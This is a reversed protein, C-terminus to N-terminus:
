LLMKRINYRLTGGSHRVPFTYTSSKRITFAINEGAGDVRQRTSPLVGQGDWFVNADWAVSPDDWRAAPSFEGEQLQDGAPQILETTDYVLGYGFYWEAYGDARSETVFNHFSKQFQVAGAHYYHTTFYGDLTNGDFSTGKDLKYVFGNSAGIFLSEIGTSSESSWSCNVTVDFQVPMAGKIKKGDLTVYLASQDNFFIRYQNKDRVTMAAVAKTRRANTWSRLHRTLSSHVFNGFSQSTRFNTVGLDDMFLSIGVDALTYTYAGVSERYPVLNWDAASNGYLVYMRRRNAVLLTANGVEGPEVQVGTITGLTVLAAAGTVATFTFPEGISSHQLNSGFALFLHRKHLALHTPTDATQKSNIPAFVTGDFEFARSAGDCGYLREADGTGRVNGIVFQYRGNPELTIDDSDGGITAINAQGSVVDINEAQFTGTQSAFVVRGAADGAQWSGSELCVRTVTAQALSTAGQITDGENITGVGGSTFSLEKGLAVQSWGGSTEKYMRAESGGTHNRFAYVENAYMVVGLVSGEGPVALIDTRYDDAALAKYQAHLKITSAGDLMPASDLTAQPSAAVELNEGVTFTGSVRTVVLYDNDSPIAVVKATETSTAGTVTDGVAIAGTLTIDMTYYSQESPEPQGDYREYGQIDVYGGEVGVEYNLSDRLFGGPVELEPTETDLGGVFPMYRTKPTPLKPTPKKRAFAM